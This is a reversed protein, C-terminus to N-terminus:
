ESAADTLQKAQSQITSLCSYKPFLNEVKEPANLSPSVEGGRRILESFTSITFKVRGAIEPDKATDFHQSALANAEFEVLADLEKKQAVLLDELSDNKIALGRAHQSFIEFEMWKKAIVAASWAAGAIITVAAATEVAVHIWLSGSEWRIVKFTGGISAPTIIQLTAKEIKQLENTVIGIDQSDPFKMYICELPEEPLLRPMVRQLAVVSDRLFNAATQVMAAGQTIMISLENASTGYLPSRYLIEIEEKFADINELIGLTNKFAIVNTFHIQNGNHVSKLFQEGSPIKLLVSQLDTLSIM